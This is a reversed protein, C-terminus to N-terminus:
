PRTSAAWQRINELRDRALASEVGDTQKGYVRGIRQKELDRWLDKIAEAGGVKDLLKLNAAHAHNSVHAVGRWAAGAMIYQHAAQYCMEIIAEWDTAPDLKAQSAEMREGKAYHTEANM